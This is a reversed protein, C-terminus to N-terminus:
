GEHHVTNQKDSMLLVTAILLLAAGVNHLVALTLPVALLVNMIGLGIQIGLLSGFLARGLVSLRLSLILGVLFVILAWWRHVFHIAIRGEMSMEGGLYNPGVEQFVNFGEPLNMSPILESHCLPFDPCALAAYNASVWGGLAIQVILVALFIKVYTQVPFSGLGLHVPNLKLFYWFLLGLTIMGGLLHVTVVQPLLKLTVTWAGFAGQVVVLGLLLLPFKLSQKIRWAVVVIVLVLLGLGSALYRHVMEVWAKEVDIPSDPFKAEAAKIGAETEPVILQGYCGPWDPCGLGADVLRTYAGVVVVLFALCVAGGVLVSLIKNSREQM